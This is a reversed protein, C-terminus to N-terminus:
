RIWLTGRSRALSRRSKLPPAQGFSLPTKESVPVNSKPYVCKEKNWLCLSVITDKRICARPKESVCIKTQATKESVSIKTASPSKLYVWKPDWTPSKPYVLPDKRICLNNDSVRLNHFTLNGVNGQRLAGLCLSAANENNTEIWRGISHHGLLLPQIWGCNDKNTQLWRGISHHGLQHNFGAAITRM